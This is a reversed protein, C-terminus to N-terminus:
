WEGTASCMGSGHGLLPRAPCSVTSTLLDAVGKWSETALGDSTRLGYTGERAGETPNTRDWSYLFVKDVWTWETAALTVVRQLYRARVEDTVQGCEGGGTCWGIETIWVPQTADAALAVERQRMMRGLVTYEPPRAASGPSLSPPDPYPHVSWIDVVEEIDPDSDLLRQLWPQQGDTRYELLDGAAVIRMEPQAARVARATQRVLRAYAAADPNPQWFWHGWPENWMELATLPNAPLDPHEQWFHGDRGYRVAIAQAFSAYQEFDSPPHHVDGNSDSSAWPTSYDIIALVKVGRRAAAAMLRDSSKWRREGQTPELHRWDFDARLWGVNANSVGALEEYPRKSWLLHANVGVRDGSASWRTVPNTQQQWCAVEALLVGLLLLAAAWGVVTARGSLTIRKVDVDDVVIVVM